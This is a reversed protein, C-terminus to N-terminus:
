PTTALLLMGHAVADTTFIVNGSVVQETHAIEPCDPVYLEVLVYVTPAATYSGLVYQEGATNGEEANLGRLIGSPVPGSVTTQNEWVESAVVRATELYPYPLTNVSTKYNCSVSGDHGTSADAETVEVATYLVYAL